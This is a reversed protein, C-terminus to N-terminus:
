SKQVCSDARSLQNAGHETMAMSSLLEFSCIEDLVLIGRLSGWAQGEMYVRTQEIM